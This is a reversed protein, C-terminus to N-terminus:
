ASFVHDSKALEKMLTERQQVTVPIVLDDATLNLADLSEQEVLVDKVGYMSLADFTPAIHKLGIAEPQQNKVLAWVGDDMFYLRVAQDFAAGILVSDLLEQVHITGHPPRRFVYGLKRCISM